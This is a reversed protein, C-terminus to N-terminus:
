CHRTLIKHKRSSIRSPRFQGKLKVMQKLFHPRSTTHVFGYSKTFDNFASSAYQPGNDSILENPIGNRGFQSKLHCIINNM